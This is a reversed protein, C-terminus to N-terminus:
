LFACLKVGSVSTPLSWLVILAEDESGDEAQPSPVVHCRRGRCGQKTHTYALCVPATRTCVSRLLFVLM